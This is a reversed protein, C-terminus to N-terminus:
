KLEQVDVKGSELISASLSLTKKGTRKEFDKIKEKSELFKKEAYDRGKDTPFSTMLHAHFAQERQLEICEECHKCIWWCSDITPEEENPNNVWKVGEQEGCYSCVTGKAPEGKFMYPANKMYLAKVEPTQELRDEYGNIRQLALRYKEVSKLDGKKKADVKAVELQVRVSLWARIMNVPNKYIHKDRCQKCIGTEDDYYIDRIHMEVLMCEVDGTLLVPYTEYEKECFHCKTM